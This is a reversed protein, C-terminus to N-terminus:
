RKRTRRAHWPTPMLRGSIRCTRCRPSGSLVPTISRCSWLIRVCRACSSSASRNRTCTILQSCSRSVLHSAHVLYAALTGRFSSSCTVGDVVGQGAVVLWDIDGAADAHDQVQQLARTFVGDLAYRRFHTYVTKWSGYPEPLERWSIGTRIKYVMGNIVQRDEIRPRGTALSGGEGLSQGCLDDVRKSLISLTLGRVASCRRDPAEWVRIRSPRSM